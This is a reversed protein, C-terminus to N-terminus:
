PQNNSLIFYEFLSFINFLGNFVFILNGEEVPFGEQAKYFTM